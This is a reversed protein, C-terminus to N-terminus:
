RALASTRKTIWEWDVSGPVAKRRVNGNAVKTRPDLWKHIESHGDAFAIGAANNHYTGPWDIWEAQRMGVGFGGDNVSLADEDIIVWTNAPGPRNLDSMKGYTRYPKDRKHRQSNNLWPGNVPRAPAGTHGSGTDYAVCITGVAQNMSFTRAAPVDKGANAPNSGQYIGSRRDAPCKFMSVNKGVYRALLMKEPDKLIDSDFEHPQGDGAHGPVWNHGQVINGDDPNPPFLGRRDTTYLQIALMMQKGNNLCYIAQAKSKSKSLAPLLMAALIAIIAIVVLLEILTFGHIQQSSDCKTTKM